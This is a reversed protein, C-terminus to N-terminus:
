QTKKKLMPECCWDETCNEGCMLNCEYKSSPEFEMQVTSSHIGFKHMVDKIKKYVHTSKELTMNESALVHVDGIVKQNNLLSWVHLEHIGAVNETKLIAEKLKAVDIHAPVSQLLVVYCRYILPITPVFLVIAIFMSLAPDIYQTYKDSDPVYIRCILTVSASIMVVISGLFDGFVHLFVGCMNENGHSHKKKTKKEEHHHNCEKGHDHHTQDNEHAHDQNHEHHEHNHEEEHHHEHNHVDGEKHQHHDDHGGDSHGHSHGIHAHGCFMIMGIINILMGGGGVCLVLIPNGLPEPKIFRQIADLFIFISVTLLFVANVMGGVIESRGFGYSFM